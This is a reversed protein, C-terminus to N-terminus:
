FTVPDLDPDTASIPLTVVAGVPNSQNAVAGVSPARDVGSVVWNFQVSTSTPGDSVTVTVFNTPTASFSIAGSIVGTVQDIFLGNPLGSATFVLPDGEADSASIPLNVLAGEAGSQPGPNTLQPPTNSTSGFVENSPPSPVHNSYYTQGNALGHIGVSTANGADVVQTYQGPATGFVVYYGIVDPSTSPDWQLTITGALSTAAFT